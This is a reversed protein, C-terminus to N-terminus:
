SQLLQSNRSLLGKSANAQLVRFDQKPISEISEPAGFVASHGRTTLPFQKHCRKWGIQQMARDVISISNTIKTIRHVAQTPIGGDELRSFEKGADRTITFYTKGHVLTPILERMAANVTDPRKNSLAVAALERTYVYSLM